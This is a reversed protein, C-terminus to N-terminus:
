VAPEATKSASPKSDTDGKKSLKIDVSNIIKNLIATSFDSGPHGPIPSEIKDKKTSKEPFQFAGDTLSERVESQYGPTNNSGAVRIRMFGVVFHEIKSKENIHLRYIAMLISFTLTYIALFVYLFADPINLTSESKISLLPLLFASVLIMILTVTLMMVVSLIRSASTSHDAAIKQSDSIAGDINELETKM